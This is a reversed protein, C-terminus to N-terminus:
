WAVEIHPVVMRTLNVIVWHAVCGGGHCCPGETGNRQFGRIISILLPPRLGHPPFNAPRPGVLGATTRAPAKLHLSGQQQPPPLPPLSVCQVAAAAACHNWRPGPHFHLGASAAQCGTAARLRARAGHRTPLGAVSSHAAPRSQAAGHELGGAARADRELWGPLRSDLALVVRCERWM